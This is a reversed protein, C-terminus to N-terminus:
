KGEPNSGNNHVYKEVTMCAAHGILRMCRRNMESVTNPSYNILFSMM